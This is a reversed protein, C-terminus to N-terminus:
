LRFVSVFRSPFLLIHGSWDNVLPWFTRDLLSLSIQYEKRWNRSSFSFGSIGKGLKSFPFLFTFFPEGSELLSLSLSKRKELKSLLFLIKKLLRWSRSSFSFDSIRKGLKSFLFLFKSFHEGSELLSLSISIIKELNSLLFLIGVLNKSFNEREGFSQWVYESLWLKLSHSLKVSMEKETLITIKAAISHM